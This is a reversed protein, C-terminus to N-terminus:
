AGYVTAGGNQIARLLLRLVASMLAAAAGVELLITINMGMTHAAMPALVYHGLSEVGLASYIVLLLLGLRAHGRTILLCGFAGIGSMGFWAGYIGARTWSPPLSPYDALFVANHIFHILSAVSYLALLVILSMPIRKSTTTM